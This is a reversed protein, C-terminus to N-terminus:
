ATGNLVILNTPVFYSNKDTVLKHKEDSWNEHAENSILIVFTGILSKLQNRHIFLKLSALSFKISSSKSNNLHPSRIGNTM